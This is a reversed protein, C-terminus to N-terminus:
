HRIVEVTVGAQLMVLANLSYAKNDWDINLNKHISRKSVTYIIALSNSKKQEARFCCLMVFMVFTFVYSKKQILVIQIGYKM